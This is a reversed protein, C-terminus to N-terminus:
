RPTDPPIAQRAPAILKLTATTETNRWAGDRFHFRHVPIDGEWPGEVTHLRETISLIGDKLSWYGVYIVQGSWLCAYHGDRSLRITCPITGWQADWTGVLDAPTIPRPTRPRPAPASVAWPCALTILWGISLLFRRTM